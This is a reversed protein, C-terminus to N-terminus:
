LRPGWPGDGVVAGGAHRLLRRRTAAADGEPLQLAVIGAQNWAVGCPGIATSFTAAGATPDSPM